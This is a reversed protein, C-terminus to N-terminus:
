AKLEDNSPSEAGSASNKVAEFSNGWTVFLSGALPTTM